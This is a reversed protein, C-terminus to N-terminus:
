TKPFRPRPVHASFETIETQAPPCLDFPEVVSAGRLKQSQLPVALASPFCNGGSSPPPPAACSLAAPLSPALSISMGSTNPPETPFTWLGPPRRPSISSSTEIGWRRAYLAKLASLPFQEPSLNTILTEIKGGSTQFRVIRFSMAYFDASNPASLDFTMTPPIRYYSELVDIGQAELQRPTLRGLTLKLPLDFEPRDPLPAGYAVARGKSNNRIQCFILSIKM